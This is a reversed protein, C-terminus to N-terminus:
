PYNAQAIKRIRIYMQKFGNQRSPTLWDKYKLQELKSYQFDLIEEPTLGSFIDCLMRGTGQVIKSEGTVEFYLKDNILFGALYVKSICGPVLNTPFKIAPRDPGCTNILYECFDLSTKKSNVEQIFKNLKEEITM